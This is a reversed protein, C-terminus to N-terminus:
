WINHGGLKFYQARITWSLLSSILAWTWANTSELPRKLVQGMVSIRPSEDPHKIEEEQLVQASGNCENMDVRCTGWAHERATRKATQLKKLCRKKKIELRIKVPMLHALSEPVYSFLAACIVNSGKSSDCLRNLLQCNEISASSRRAKLILACRIEARLIRGVSNFESRLCQM